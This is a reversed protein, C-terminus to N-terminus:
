NIRKKVLRWITGIEPYNFYTELARSYLLKGVMQRTFAKKVYQKARAHPSQRLYEPYLFRLKNDCTRHWPKSRGNFHIIVKDTLFQRYARKPLDYPIYAKMVNYRSNLRYWQGQFVMNLADQDCYELKEPHASIVDMSKETIRLTRWRPLNMLLVGANFYDETRFIGLETRLPMEAEMVAGIAADGIDTRYLDSLGGVVTTDVDLYLLREIDSALLRPFFIRYYTALTLWAESKDPVPFGQTIDESLEYFRVDGGQSRAYSIIKLKEADPVETAIAHLQIPSDRNNLFISTLLAYVPTIYGEDFAIAIHIVPPQQAM